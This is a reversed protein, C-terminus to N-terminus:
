SYYMNGGITDYYVRKGWKKELRASKFFMVEKPLTSADNLFVELVANVASFSPVLSAFSDYSVVTFQGPAYAIKEITAPFKKSNYRNYIVSAMAFFGDTSQQRGEAYILKAALWIDEYTFKYKQPNDKLDQLIGMLKAEDVKSSDSKPLVGNTESSADNADQAASQELTPLPTAVPESQAATPEPLEPSAAPGELIPKFAIPQAFAVVEFAILLFLTLFVPLVRKFM